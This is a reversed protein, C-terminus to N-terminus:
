TIDEILGVPPLDYWPHLQKKKTKLKQTIKATGKILIEGANLDIYVIM